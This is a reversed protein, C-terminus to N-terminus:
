ASAHGLARALGEQWEVLAPRIGRVDRLTLMRKRVTRVWDPSIEAGRVHIQYSLEYGGVSADILLDDLVDSVRFDCALHVGGVSFADATACWRLSGLRELWEDRQRRDEPFLLSEGRTREIRTLRAIVERVAREHEVPATLAITHCLGRGPGATIRHAVTSRPIRAAVALQRAVLDWTDPALASGRSPLPAILAAAQIWEEANAEFRALYM